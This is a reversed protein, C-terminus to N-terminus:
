ACPEHTLLLGVTDGDGWEDVTLSPNMIEQEDDVDLLGGVHGLEHMTLREVLWAPTPSESPRLYVSGGVYRGDVAFAEGFGMRSFTVDDPWFWEILVPADLPRPDVSRRQDTLGVFQADRGTVAVYREVARHVAEIQADTAGEPNIEYRFPGCAWRTAEDALAYTCGAALLALVVVSAALHRM